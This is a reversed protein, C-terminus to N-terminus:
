PSSSTEFVSSGDDALCPVAEAYIIDRLDEIVATRMVLDVKPVGLIAELRQQVRAFDFLSM